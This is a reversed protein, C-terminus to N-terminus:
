ADKNGAEEQNRAEDQRNIEATREVCGGEDDQFKGEAYDARGDDSRDKRAGQRPSNLAQPSEGVVKQVSSVSFSRQGALVIFCLSQVLRQASHRPADM